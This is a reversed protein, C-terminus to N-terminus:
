THRGCHSSIRKKSLCFRHSDLGKWRNRGPERDHAKVLTDRGTVPVSTRATMGGISIGVNQVVSLFPSM